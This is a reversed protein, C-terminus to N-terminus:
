DPRRGLPVWDPRLITAAKDALAKSFGQSVLWEAVMENTPHTDRDDRDANAWFRDAALLMLMLKHSRHQFSAATPPKDISSSRTDILGNERAWGLWPVLLGKSAAWELYYAPPNRPKHDGSFWISSM